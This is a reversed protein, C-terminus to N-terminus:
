SLAACVDTSDGTTTFHTVVGTDLDLTYETHGTLGLLAGPSDLEGDPGQDGPFLQILYRGSIVVFVDNSAADYMETSHYRSRQLYTQGSDLNTLTINGHGNATVRGDSFTKITVRTKADVAVGVGFACGLGAPIDSPVPHVVEREPKDASAPTAILLVVAAVTGLVACWRRM